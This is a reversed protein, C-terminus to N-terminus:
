CEHSRNSPSTSTPTKPSTLPPCRDTGPLPGGLGSSKYTPIPLSTSARAGRSLRYYLEFDVEETITPIGMSENRLAMSERERRDIGTCSVPLSELDEIPTSVVYITMFDAGGGDATWTLVIDGDTASDPDLSQSTLTFHGQADPAVDGLDFVVMDRLPITLPDGDDCSPDFTATREQGCSSAKGSRVVLQGAIPKIDDPFETAYDTDLELAPCVADTTAIYKMSDEDFSVGSRPDEALYLRESDLEWVALEYNANTDPNTRKSKIILPRRNKGGALAASQVVVFGAHRVIMHSTDDPFKHSFIKRPCDMLVSVVEAVPPPGDGPFIACMGSVALKLKM